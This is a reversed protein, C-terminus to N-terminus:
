PRVPRTAAFRVIPVPTALPMWYPPAMAEEYFVVRLTDFARLLENPHHGYRDGGVGAGMAGYQMGEVVLLGGPTLSAAIAGAHRTLMDHMYLGVVLDWQERGYDFTDVDAVVATLRVHRKDAETLAAKVGAASADFGTVAWGQSALFLANRGEGTGIDLARGPTRGETMRALFANHSLSGPPLKAYVGDWVNSTQTQAAAVSVAALIAIGLLLRMTVELVSSRM